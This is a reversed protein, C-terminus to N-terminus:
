TGEPIALSRLVCGVLEQFVRQETNKLLQLQSPEGTRLEMLYHVNALAELCPVLEEALERATRPPHSQQGM